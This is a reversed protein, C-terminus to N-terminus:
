YKLIDKKTKLQEIKTEIEKNKKGSEFNSIMM